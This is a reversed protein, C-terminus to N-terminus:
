NLSTTCCHGKGSNLVMMPKDGTVCLTVCLTDQWATIGILILVCALGDFLTKVFIDSNHIYHVSM